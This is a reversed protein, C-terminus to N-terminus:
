AKGNKRKRKVSATIIVVIVVALLAAAIIIVMTPDKEQTIEVESSETEPMETRIGRVLLRHSNVGYPTCTILTVYDQGESPKLSDVNEPLVIDINDIEYALVEDLINLYFIDGLVLEDLSTFLMASPLGTHGTLVSHNGSGGIPLNSRALHGVSNKLVDESTGHRIPLYVNIKPISIHGMIGDINLVSLYEEPLIEDDGGSFADAGKWVTRSQNYDGAKLWEEQLMEQEMEQVTTDYEMIELNRSNQVIWNSIFPYLLIGVGAALVIVIVVTFIIKKKVKNGWIGSLFRKHFIDSRCPLSNEM